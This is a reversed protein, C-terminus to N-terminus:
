KLQSKLRILSDKLSELADQLSKAAALAPAPTPAPTPATPAQLGLKIEATKIKQRLSLTAHGGWEDVPVFLKNELFTIYDSIKKQVEEAKSLDNQNKIDLPAVNEALLIILEDRFPRGFYWFAGLNKYDDFFKYAKTTKENMDVIEKIDRVQKFLPVIYKNILEDRTKLDILFFIHGVGIRGGQYRVLNDIVLGLPEVIKLDQPSLGEKKDWLGKFDNFTKLNPTNIFADYATKFQQVTPPQMAQLGNFTLFGILIGTKVTLIASKM